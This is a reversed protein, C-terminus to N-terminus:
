DCAEGANLVGDGCVGPPLADADPGAEVDLAGGDADGTTADGADSADGAEREAEDGVEGESAGDGADERNAGRDTSVDPYIPSEINEGSDSCACVFLGPLAWAMTFLRWSQMRPRM